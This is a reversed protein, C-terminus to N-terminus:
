KNILMQYKKLLKKAASNIEYGEKIIIEKFKEEREFGQQVSEMIAEKWNEIEKDISLFMNNKTIDVEKTIESSFLCKLGNAQAEIAVVPLGEFRSPLLFLDFTNLLESVDKRNGLFKVKHGIGATKTQEKVVKELSGSGVCVLVINDKEQLESMIKILFEHNKQYEIRGVHGLVFKDELRLEKRLMDRRELNFKFKEVDIANPIVEFKAQEGYLWKCAAESCGWLHTAYMEIKRKAKDNLLIKLKNNTLYNTNHSHSIRVKIGAQKAIKLVVSNMADMHVHVIDYQNQAMVKKLGRINGFYDKSKVPVHYIKGGNEIIEKDYVGEGTGHMIFDIQLKSKDMHRYYNMLYAETGGYGMIGGFVYLIKIKKTELGM